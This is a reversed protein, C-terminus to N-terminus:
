GPTTNVKKLMKRITEDSIAAVYNLEIVRETLLALTWLAMGAPAESCAIHTM